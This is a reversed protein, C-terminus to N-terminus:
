FRCINAILVGLGTWAAIIVEDMRALGAGAQKHKGLSSLLGTCIVM